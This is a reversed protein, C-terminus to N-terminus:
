GPTGGNWGPRGRLGVPPLTYPKNPNAMVDRYDYRAGPFGVLKWGVMDKNGGYIPDAFFGELTNAHVTRFLMGSDFKEFKITGTQMGTLLKDQDDPGLEAFSKGAFNAKCYAGLAALGQRYQVRPVLPSQIGQTPLPHNSFPPQMYYWDYGGWPGTLQRDIFTTVGAEKAGPGLEDAPILRAVIADVQAAEDATFFLYPGPLVQEPPYVENARWPLKGSLSHAGATRALAIAATGALLARRRSLNM